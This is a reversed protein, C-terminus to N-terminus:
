PKGQHHIRKQPYRAKALLDIVGQRQDHRRALNGRGGNGVALPDHPM